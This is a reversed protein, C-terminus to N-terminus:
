RTVYFIHLSLDVQMDPNLAFPPGEIHDGIPYILAILIGDSSILESIKSAWKQRLEPPFTCLFTYDYVFQYKEKPPIHDFFDGQQFTVHSDPIKLEKQKQQVREILIQSLDLGTVHRSESSLYFVDYGNGCGPVFGRGDPLPFKKEEILQRLAPSIEGYDWPTHEEKYLTDWGAAGEETLIEKISKVKQESQM